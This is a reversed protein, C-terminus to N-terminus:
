TLEEEEDEEDSSSEKDSPSISARFSCTSSFFFSIAVILFWGQRMFFRSTTSLYFSFVLKSMIKKTETRTDRSKSLKKNKNKKGRM